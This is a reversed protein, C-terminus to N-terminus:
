HHICCLLKIERTETLAGQMVTNFLTSFLSSVLLGVEIAKQCMGCQISPTNVTVKMPEEGCGVFLVMVLPFILLKTNM